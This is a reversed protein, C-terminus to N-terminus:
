SAKGRAYTRNAEQEHVPLDVLRLPFFVLLRANPKSKMMQVSIVLSSGAIAAILAM